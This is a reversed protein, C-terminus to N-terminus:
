FNAYEDTVMIDLQVKQFNQSTFFDQMAAEVEVSTADRALLSQYAWRIM